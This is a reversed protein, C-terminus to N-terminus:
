MGEENGKEANYALLCQHIAFYLEYESSSIIFDVTLNCYLMFDQIEKDTKFSTVRKVVEANYRRAAIVKKSDENVLSEYKRQSKASRSFAEYLATIPGQITYTLGPDGMGPISVNSNGYPATAANYRRDNLKLDPMKPTQDDMALIAQKLAEADAPWPYITAGIILLTDSHMVIHLPIVPSLRDTPLHYKLPDYGVCTIRLTDGPFANIKFQGERNSLTGWQNSVNVVHVNEINRGDANTIIGEVSINRDPSIVQANVNLLVLLSFCLILIGRPM